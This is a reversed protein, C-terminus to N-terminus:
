YDDCIDEYLKISLPLLLAEAEELSVGSKCILAGM